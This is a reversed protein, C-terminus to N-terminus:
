DVCINTGKPINPQYMLRIIDTSLMSRVSIRGQYNYYAGQTSVFFSILHPLLVSLIVM